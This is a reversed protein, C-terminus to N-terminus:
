SPFPPATGRAGGWRRLIEPLLGVTTAYSVLMAAALLLGLSANPKIASVALV